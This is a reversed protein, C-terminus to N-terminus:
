KSQRFICFAVKSYTNFYHTTFQKLCSGISWHLCILQGKWKKNSTRGLSIMMIMMMMEKLLFFSSLILGKQGAFLRSGLIIVLLVLVRRRREKNYYLFRHCSSFAFFLKVLFFAKRCCRHIMKHEQIENCQYIIMRMVQWVLWYKEWSNYIFFLTFYEFSPKSAQSHLQLPSKRYKKPPQRHQNNYSKKLPFMKERKNCLCM